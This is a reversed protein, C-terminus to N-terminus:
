LQRRVALSLLRLGLLPNVTSPVGTPRLTANTLSLVGASLCISVTTDAKFKMLTTGTQDGQPIVGVANFSLRRRRDAQTPPPLRMTMEQFHTNDIYGSGYVWSGDVLQTFGWDAWTTGYGVPPVSGAPKPGTGGPVSTGATSGSAGSTPVYPKHLSVKASSPYIRTSATLYFFGLQVNDMTYTVDYFVNSPSWNSPIDFDVVAFHYRPLSEGGLLLEYRSYTSGGKVRVLKAPDQLPLMFDQPLFSAIISQQDESIEGGLAEIDADLESIAGAVNNSSFSSSSLSVQNADNSTAVGSRTINPVYRRDGLPITLGDPISAGM